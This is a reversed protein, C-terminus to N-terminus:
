AGARARRTRDRMARMTGGVDRLFLTARKYTAFRRAFGITLVKPNLAERAREIETQAAGRERWPEERGGRAVGVLGGRRILAGGGGSSKRKPRVASACLREWGSGRSCWWSRAVANTIGGCNRM